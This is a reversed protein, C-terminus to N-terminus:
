SRNRRMYKNLISQAAESTNGTMEKKKDPAKGGAAPKTEAAPAPQGDLSLPSVMEMITTGDPVGDPGREVTTSEDALDLLMAAVSDDENADKSLVKPLPTPKNVPLPPGEIAIRFSLPGVKLVDDNKMELEGKVQADNLFTGNTSDFDRIFFKDGKTLIACHRKSIIASAPRLQCQPDRGIIFQSLKVPVAQGAAKGETLVVLSLKM